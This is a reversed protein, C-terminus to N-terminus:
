FNSKGPRGLVSSLPDPRPAVAFNAPTNAVGQDLPWNRNRFYVMDSSRAKPVSSRPGLQEPLVIAKSLADRHHFLSPWQMRHRSSPRRRQCSMAIREAPWASDDAHGIETALALHDSLRSPRAAGGGFWHRRRM